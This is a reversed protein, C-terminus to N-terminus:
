NLSLRVALPEGSAAVLMDARILEDPANDVIPIGMAVLTSRPLATSLLQPQAAALQAPSLDALAVFGDNAQLPTDM